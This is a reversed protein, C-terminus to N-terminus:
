HVPNSIILICFISVKKSALENEGIDAKNTEDLNSNNNDNTSAYSREFKDHILTEATQIWDDQWGTTKFYQLKHHPHLVSPRTLYLLCKFSFNSEGMAIRYVKSGDTLEYYCNLTKKAIGLALCISPTYHHDVTNTTLVEDILDMASIVTALNPTSCFFFLTTHKLIKWQTVHVCLTHHTNPEM